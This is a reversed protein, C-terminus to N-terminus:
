SNHEFNRPFGHMKRDMGTVIEEHVKQHTENTQHVHVIFLPRPVTKIRFSTWTCFKELRSWDGKGPDCTRMVKSPWNRLHQQQQHWVQRHTFANKEFSSWFLGFQTSRGSTSKLRWLADLTLSCGLLKCRVAGLFAPLYSATDPCFLISLVQLLIVICLPGGGFQSWISQWFTGPLCSTPCLLAGMSCSSKDKSQLFTQYWFSLPLGEVKVWQTQRAKALHEVQFVIVHQLYEEGNWKHKKPGVNWWASNFCPRMKISAKRRKTTGSNARIGPGSASAGTWQCACGQSIDQIKLHMFKTNIELIWLKSPHPNTQMPKCILLCLRM